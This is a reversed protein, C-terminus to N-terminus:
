IKDSLQKILLGKRQRSVPVTKEINRFFVESMGYSDCVRLRVGKVARLNILYSKHCRFFTRYGGARLHRELEQLSSDLKVVADPTHVYLVDGHAEAFIIEHPIVIIIDGPRAGTDKRIEFLRGVLRFPLTRPKDAGEARDRLSAEHRTSAEPSSLLEELRFAGSPLEETGVLRYVVASRKGGVLSVGFLIADPKHEKVLDAVATREGVGGILETESRKGLYDRIALRLEETDDVVVVKM